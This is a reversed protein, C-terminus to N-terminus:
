GGKLLRYFTRVNAATINATGAKIAKVVGEASVTAVAENDSTWTLEKNTANDPMIAAELTFEEGVTLELTSKSLSISGVRIKEPEQQCSLVSSIAITALIIFSLFPKM